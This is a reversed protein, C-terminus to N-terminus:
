LAARLARPYPQRRHHARRRHLVSGQDRAPHRHAAAKAQALALEPTTTIYANLRPNLAAVAENHAIALEMASLKRAALAEAAAAITLDTLSM